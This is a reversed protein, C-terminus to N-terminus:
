KDTQIYLVVQNDVTYKYKIHRLTAFTFSHHFAYEVSVNRTHTHTHLHTHTHTHAKRNRVSNPVSM